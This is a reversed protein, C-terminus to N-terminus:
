RDGKNNIDGKFKFFVYVFFWMLGLTLLITLVGGLTNDKWCEIQAAHYEISIQYQRKIFEFM